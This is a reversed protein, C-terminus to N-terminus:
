QFKDGEQEIGATVSLRPRAENQYKKVLKRLIMEMKVSSSVPLIFVELRIPFDRSEATV